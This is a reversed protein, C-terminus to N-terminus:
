INNSINPLHLNCQYYASNHVFICQCTKFLISMSFMVDQIFELGLCEIYPIFKGVNVLKGDFNGLHLYIYWVNLTKSFIKWNVHKKQNKAAAASSPVKAGQIQIELTLTSGVDNAM